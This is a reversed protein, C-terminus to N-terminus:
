RSDIRSAFWVQYLTRSPPQTAEVLREGNAPAPTTMLAGVNVDGTVEGGDGSMHVRLTDTAQAVFVIEPFRHDPPFQDFPHDTDKEAKKFEWPGHQGVLRGRGDLHEVALTVDETSFPITPPGRKFRRFTITAVRISDPGKPGFALSVPSTTHTLIRSMGSDSSRFVNTSNTNPDAVVQATQPGALALGTTHPNTPMYSHQLNWTMGDASTYTDTIGNQLAPNFSTGRDVALWLTGPSTTLQPWTDSNIAAGAGTTVPTGPMGPWALPNATSLIRVDFGGAAKHALLFSNNFFAMGLMRAGALSPVTAPASTTPRIRIVTPTGTADSFAAFWAGAGFVVAPRSSPDVAFTGHTLPGTWTVGNTSTQSSLTGMSDFWAIVYGTADAGIGPPTKLPSSAPTGGPNLIPNATSWQGGDVSVRTEISGDDATSAMVYLEPVRITTGCSMNMCGALTLTACVTTGVTCPTTRAVRGIM